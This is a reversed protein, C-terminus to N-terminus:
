MVNVCPRKKEVLHMMFKLLVIIDAHEFCGEKLLMTFVPIQTMNTGCLGAFDPLFLMLCLGHSRARLLLLCHLEKILCLQEIYGMNQIQMIMNLYQGHDMDCLHLISDKEIIDM